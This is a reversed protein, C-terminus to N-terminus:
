ARRAQASAETGKPSLPGSKHETATSTMEDGICGGSNKQWWDLTDFDSEAIDFEHLKAHTHKMWTEVVFKQISPSLMLADSHSHTNKLCAAQLVGALVLARTLAIEDESEQEVQRDFNIPFGGNEIYHVQGNAFRVTARDYPSRGQAAIQLLSKFEVDRSSCSIFHIPAKARVDSLRDAQLFNRGTCGFVVESRHLLFSLTKCIYVGRPYTIKNRDYLYVTRGGAVLSKALASGLAGGGVIGVASVNHVLHLANVKKLVGKAIVKSEFLRKAASRSIDIKKMEQPVPERWFGSATLQVSIIELRGFVSQDLGWLSLRKPHEPDSLRWLTETLLGGDDIVILRVKRGPFKHARCMRLAAICGRLLSDHAAFDYDGLRHSRIDEVIRFGLKGFECLASPISSYAKPVIVVRAPSIGIDARTLQRFLEVMSPLCHPQALVVVHRSRENRDFETHRLVHRQVDELIDRAANM